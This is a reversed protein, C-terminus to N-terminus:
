HVILIRADAGMYLPLEAPLEGVDIEIPFRRSLRIWNTTPAVYPLTAITGPDRAIGRALSRVKGRYIRWPQSSIMFYTTDGARTHALHQELINVVIRWNDDTVVTLVSQGVDIYDGVRATFPAVHGPRTARVTAKDLNYNATALAAQAREVSAGAKAIDAESALVAAKASELASQAELTARRLDDLRQQSTVGRDTLVNVREETTKADDLAAEAAKEAAQQEALLDNASKVTDQALKLDATALQVAYTFPAKDIVFLVDGAAVQQNDAVNLEALLGAVPPAFTVTDALMYADSSYAIYRRSYQNILFLAVLVAVTLLFFHRRIGGLIRAGRADSM